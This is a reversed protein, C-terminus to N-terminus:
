RQIPAAEHGSSKDYKGITNGRANKLIAKVDEDWGFILESNDSSFCVVFLRWLGVSESGAPLSASSPSLHLRIERLFFAFSLM